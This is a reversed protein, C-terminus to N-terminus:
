AKEGTNWSLPCAYVIKLMSFRRLANRDINKNAPNPKTRTPVEMSRATAERIRPVEDPGPAAIPGMKAKRVRPKIM